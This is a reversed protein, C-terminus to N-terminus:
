RSTCSAISVNRIKGTSNMPDSTNRMADASAYERVRLVIPAIM